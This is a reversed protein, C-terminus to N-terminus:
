VQSFNLCEVSMDMVDYRLVNLTVTTKADWVRIHQFGKDVGGSVQGTAIIWSGPHQSM